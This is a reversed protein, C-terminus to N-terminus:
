MYRVIRRIHKHNKLFKETLVLKVGYKATKRLTKSKLVKKVLMTKMMKM